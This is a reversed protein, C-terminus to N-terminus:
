RHDGFCGALLGHKYPLPTKWRVESAVSLKKGHGEVAVGNATSWISSNKENQQEGKKNLMLYKPSRGESSSRFLFLDKLIWKKYSSPFSFSKSSFLKSQNSKHGHNQASTEPKDHALIDSVRLWTASCDGKKRERSLEREQKKRENIRKISDRLSFIIAPPPEMLPKIKGGYFLDDATSLHTQEFQCSFEFEFEGDDGSIEQAVEPDGGIEASGTFFTEDFNSRSSDLVFNKGGVDIKPATAPAGGHSSIKVSTTPM